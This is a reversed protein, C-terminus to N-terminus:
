CWILTYYMLHWATKLWHEEVDVFPQADTPPAASFSMMTTNEGDGSKFDITLKPPGQSMFPYNTLVKLNFPHAPTPGKISVELGLRDAVLFFQDEPAYIFQGSTEGVTLLESVEFRQLSM